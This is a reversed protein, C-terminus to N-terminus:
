RAPIQLFPHDGLFTRYLYSRYADYPPKVVHYGDLLPIDMSANLICVLAFYYRVPTISSSPIIGIQLRRLLSLVLLFSSVHTFSFFRWMDWAFINLFVPSLASVSASLVLIYKNQSNLQKRYIISIAIVLLGVTTPFLFLIANGSNFWRRWNKWKEKMIDLNGEAGYFLMDIADERVTFDQARSQIHEIYQPKKSESPSFRGVYFTTVTAAICLFISFTIAYRQRRIFSGALYDCVVVPFFILFFAEHILIASICASFRIASGLINLPLLLCILAFAIGIHDFYGIDHVLYVFGPSIFFAAALLWVHKDVKELIKLYYLLLVLWVTFISFCIFALTSYSIRSGILIELLQGVLGRKIFGNSYDFLLQTVAWLNPWRISSLVGFLLGLFTIGYYFYRSRTSM